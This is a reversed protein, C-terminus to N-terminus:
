ENGLPMQRVKTEDSWGLFGTWLKDHVQLNIMDSQDINSSRIRIQVEKGLPMQRVTTKQSWIVGVWNKKVKKEHVEDPRVTTLTSGM